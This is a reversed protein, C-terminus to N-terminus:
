GEYGIYEHKRKSYFEGYSRPEMYLALELFHPLQWDYKGKFYKNWYRYAKARTLECGSEMYTRYYTMKHAQYTAMLKWEGHVYKYITKCPDTGFFDDVLTEIRYRGIYTHTM